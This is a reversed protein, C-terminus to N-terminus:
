DKASAQDRAQKLREGYSAESRRNVLLIILGSVLGVGLVVMIAFKMIRVGSSVPESSEMKEYGSAVLIPITAKGKQAEYTLLRCFYGRLIVKDLNAIQSVQDEITYVRHLKDYEDLMYSEFLRPTDLPNSESPVAVWRLAKDRGLTRVGGRLEVFKGRYLDPKEWLTSFVRDHKMTSLLPEAPSKGAVNESRIKHALYVIAPEQITGLHNSCETRDRSAAEFLVEPKEVFPQLTFEAPSTGLGLPDFDEANDPQKGPQGGPQPPPVVVPVGVPVGAPVENKEKGRNFSFWMMGGIVMTLIVMMLMKPGLSSP